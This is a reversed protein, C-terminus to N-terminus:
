PTDPPIAKPSVEPMSIIKLVITVTILVVKNIDIAIRGAGASYIDILRLFGRFVKKM